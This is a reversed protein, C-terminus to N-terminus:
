LLGSSLLGVVLGAGGSLAGLTLGLWATRRRRALRQEVRELDGAEEALFRRRHLQPLWLLYLTALSVLFALFVTTPGAWHSHVAPISFLVCAVLTLLLAVNRLARLQRREWDDLADRFDRRLGLIVGAAGGVFGLGAGGLLALLKAGGHKTAAATALGAASATPASATAAVVTATFALGPASRRAADAFRQLVEARLNDRSRQLRKRVAAESLGLLGAVQKTSRGERYYLLVVERSENPLQALTDFLIRHREHDLLSSEPGPTTDAAAELVADLDQAETRRHVGRDRVFTKATYRTVQRVWPLFSAPNKLEPLKRWAVLYVEQAVDESAAVDRCIALAISTVAGMSADVLRGFASRDGGQAAVVERVLDSELSAVEAGAVSAM